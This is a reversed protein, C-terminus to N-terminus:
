LRLKQVFIIIRKQNGVSQDLAHIMHYPNIRKSNGIPAIDTITNNNIFLEVDLKNSLYTGNLLFFPKKINEGNNEEVNSKLYNDLKGKVFKDDVINNIKNNVFRIILPNINVYINLIILFKFGLNM